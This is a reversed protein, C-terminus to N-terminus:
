LAKRLRDVAQGVDTKAAAAVANIKSRYAFYLAAATAAVAWALVAYIM